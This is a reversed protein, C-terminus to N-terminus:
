QVWFQSLLANYMHTYHYNGVRESVFDVRKPTFVPALPSKEMLARDAEAWLEDAKDEDTIQAKSAKEMMKDIDEDCFGAINVSSDSGPHFSACSLLVQDFASPSPYDAYWETYAMQVHNETNQIYNFHISGALKKLSAKYGLDNLVSQVYKGIEARVPVNPVYITVEEGKTGSEEVLQKAKEMDPGNWEGGPDTTYICDERHGMFGPPLIGCTPTAVAEGGYVKAMASRDLAYNVAQRAELSDFPKENVNMTIYEMALQENTHFQSATPGASVEGLRDTPVPDFMWDIDGNKVKTTANQGDVGFNYVIEDAYGQPQALHNWEKFHPNRKAIMKTKANYSEIYYPGTTPLPDSGVDKQPSDAPLISAHPTGLKYLFDPDAETLHFTVTRADDDVDIGESLDCTKPDDICKDAGKIVGFWSSSTPGSIRFVREFSAKVDEPALEHGDSYTIGDRIKFTYRKGDDEPEPIEEALDPTPTTSKDGSTQGLKMLGDYLFQFVQWGDDAYNIQPDLGGVFGNAAALNLTGGKHEEQFAPNEGGEKSNSGTASGGSDDTSCASLMLASAMLTAGLIKYSNHKM